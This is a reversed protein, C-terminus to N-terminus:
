YGCQVDAAGAALEQLARVTFPRVMQKRWGMMFDTNDLPRAVRYSAEAAEAIRDADLRRGALAAEADPVLLPAPAVGGLVLRGRAVTGDASLAVAAAVGLVPFDFAGRRRLKHYTARLNRAPPLFIEILLEGPAKRLFQIGDPAYLDAAALWRDGRPGALRLRAELAVMVPALDSSQVAWCSRGGPAVWCTEGDKKLCFRISKRWEYTQDYYDCRTDILLNGGITSMNRLLPTSILRATRTIIPFTAEVLPDACLDSLLVGAGITLGETANGRVARLGSLGLVSIVTRPTQQRRKMNPFLDTGGAVFSADGGEGAMMRIAEDVTRPTLFTFVPLRLM